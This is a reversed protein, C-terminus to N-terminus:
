FKKKRVQEEEGRSGLANKEKCAHWEARFPRACVSKQAAILAFLPSTNVCFIVSTVLRQENRETFAVPQITVAKGIM